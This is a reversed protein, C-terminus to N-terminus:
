AAHTVPRKARAAVAGRAREQGGSWEDAPPTRASAHRMRVDRRPRMKDETDAAEGTTLVFLAAHTM